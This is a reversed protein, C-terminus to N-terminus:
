NRCGTAKLVAKIGHSFSKYLKFSIKLAKSKKKGWVELDMVSIVLM